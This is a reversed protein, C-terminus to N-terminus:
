IKTFVHSNYQWFPCNLYSYSRLMIEVTASWFM